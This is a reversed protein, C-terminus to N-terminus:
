AYPDHVKKGEDVSVWRGSARQGGEPLIACLKEVRKMHREGTRHVKLQAESNCRQDCLFCYRKGRSIMKKQWEPIFVVSGAMFWGETLKEACHLDGHTEVFAALLGICFIAPDLQTQKGPLISHCHFKAIKEWKANIDRKNPGKFRLKNVKGVLTAHNAEAVPPCYAHVMAPGHMMAQVMMAITIAM